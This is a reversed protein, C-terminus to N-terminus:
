LFDRAIEQDPSSGSLDYCGPLDVIEVKRGQPTFTHGSKIDVTVGAYNGVKASSGTLANFLTSKGANPNGILAITQHEPAM